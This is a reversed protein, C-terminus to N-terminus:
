KTHLSIKSSTELPELSNHIIQDELLKFDTSPLGNEGGQYALPFAFSCMDIHIYYMSLDNNYQKIV